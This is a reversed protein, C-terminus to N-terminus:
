RSILAKQGYLEVVQRATLGERPFIFMSIGAAELASSANPGFDGSVVAGAQQDIALKAGAVGAGSRNLMGQNELATWQMTESDVRVFWPARGFRDEVPSDIDGQQASILLIM